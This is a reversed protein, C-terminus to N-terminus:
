SLDEIRYCVPAERVFPFRSITAVAQRLDKERTKHLVFVIPINKPDEADHQVISKISIRHKAFVTTVKALIGSREQVQLRLYFASEVSDMPMVTIDRDFRYRAPNFRNQGNIRQGLDHLDSVVSSATPHSGAGKGYYLSPGLFDGKVYIANFENEVNALESGAPIFTPHVHIEAKGVEKQKAIGLLKIKYGLQRAFAVDVPRISEIGERHIKKSDIHGGFALMALLGSKAMADSGNVDLTPDKEAFGLEQARKLAQEYSWGKGVMQTLMFNTTGNIIAYFERIHNGVLSERFVKIIPIGGGVAAEFYIEAQHEIATKFIRDAHAALAAKNATVVHKGARLAALIIEVAIGAGGILEVVIQIEPDRILDNWDKTLQYRSLSARSRNKFELACITKLRLHLGSRETIIQSNRELLEALGSGVTGFGALGITIPTGSPAKKNIKQAM